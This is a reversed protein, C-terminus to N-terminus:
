ESVVNLSECHFGELPMPFKYAYLCIRWDAGLSTTFVGLTNTVHSEERIVLMTYFLFKLVNRSLLKAYAQNMHTRM